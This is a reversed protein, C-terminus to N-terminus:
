HEGALSRIISAYAPFSENLIEAGTVTVPARLSCLAMSMAIRHDGNAPVSGGKVTGGRIVFGDDLERADAGLGVLSSVIATIRDTEKFRLEKADRVVTEGEAFAAAIAIAPFEDISRVVLDGFISIGHLPAAEIVVDGVPEGLSEAVNELTIKAGMDRLIEIVGTRGPNLLVHRIKVRSGPVIAAAVMVFAASSIDGALEGVLPKLPFVPAGMVKLMRDTHDRSSGPDHIVMTGAAGLAALQLCSKVQASSVPMAYEIGHVEAPRITLPAHGDTATIDAGMERLPDVIRNMPRKSLGASGELVAATKTAVLAGALLRITTASNGCNISVGAKPFPRLGNGKVTLTENEYKWEVGLAALGNLMAKSVGTMPFNGVVSTGEALAGFLAARHSLSKDGAFTVEGQLPSKAQEFSLDM